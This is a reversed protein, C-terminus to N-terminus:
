EDELNTVKKIGTIVPNDGLRAEIIWGKRHVTHENLSRMASALRQSVQRYDTTACDYEIKAEILADAIRTLEAYDTM